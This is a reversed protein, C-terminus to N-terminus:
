YETKEKKIMAGDINWHLEETQREQSAHKNKHM